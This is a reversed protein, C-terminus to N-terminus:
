RGCTKLGGMCRMCQKEIEAVCKLETCHIRVLVHDFVATRGNYLQVNM